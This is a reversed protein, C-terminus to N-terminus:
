EAVRLANAFIADRVFIALGPSFAEWHAAFREDAVYMEGLGVHVEHSCSYFWKSILLRHQEALDMAEAAEPEVGSQMLAALGESIEESEAGMRKWDEKGYRSTRRQSEAYLDTEGWKERVEEEYDAPDFDGFVEFMEQKDMRMGGDLAALARDIAKVMRSYRDVQEIMLRRQRQLVTRRDLAPNTLSARIEDLGLGLERFFLVEQLTELDRDDYIRYGADSRGSPPLLGIADYHHLTRVTVGSMAAIQSVTYTM